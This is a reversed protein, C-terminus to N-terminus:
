LRWYIIGEKIAEKKDFVGKIDLLIPPHNLLGKIRKLNLEEILRNHRVAFIVAEFPAFSEIDKILDVGYEKKAGDRDAVPDYVIPNVMYEKLYNVLDFVKSNRVDPVNEKFSFGLVLVKANKICKDSKIMLKITEEAIFKPIEENISRGALIVRPNYGIERAKYVLYYPDIPICHGGVLGPEFKLFNWKTSAAELVERTDLNLRHFIIALENVLAINLDRQINEIVKSAEATRIDKAKYIGAKVIKGYIEALLETTRETDGAVVKVVNELTHVKDGPNIREPSYGVFFDKKWVMKSVREIIPICIEETAGPYVTSEFVVTAGRKIYRGVTESASRLYSFDPSKIKDIPTPVAVIIVDAERLKEEDSTFEVNANKLEEEEIEGTKDYNEALEKVRQVDKDFGITRYYKSLKLALPLGVYGLGLVAIVLNDGM